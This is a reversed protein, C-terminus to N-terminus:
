RIIQLGSISDTRFNEDNWSKKYQFTSDNIFEGNQYSFYGDEGFSNTLLYTNSISDLKEKLVHLFVDSAGGYQGTKFTILWIIDDSVRKYSHAYGNIPPIITGHNMLIYKDKLSAGNLVLSPVGEPQRTLYFKEPFENTFFELYIEIPIANINQEETKMDNVKQIVAQEEMNSVDPEDSDEKRFVFVLVSIIAIIIFSWIITKRNKM